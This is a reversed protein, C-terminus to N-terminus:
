KVKIPKHNFRANHHIANSIRIKTPKDNYSNHPQIHSQKFNIEKYPNKVIKSKFSCSSYLLLFLIICVMKNM